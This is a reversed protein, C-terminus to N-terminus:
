AKRDIWLWTQSNIERRLERVRLGRDDCIRTVWEPTYRVVGPTSSQHSRGVWVDGAYHSAPSDAKLYSTLFSANPNSWATFQDLMREIQRPAAHTWVSRAIVYDFRRGFIGFDFDPNHDFRPRKAAVTAPSIFQELGLGLMERNPEIGCYRDADLFHM